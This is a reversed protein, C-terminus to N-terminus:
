LLVFVDNEAHDFGCGSGASGAQSDLLNFFDLPAEWGGFRAGLEIFYTPAESFNGARHSGFNDSLAPVTSRQRSVEEVGARQHLKVV